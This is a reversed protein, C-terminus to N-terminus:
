EDENEKMANEMEKIGDATPNLVWEPKLFTNITHRQHDYCFYVDVGKFSIKMRSVRNSQREVISAKGARVLRCMEKYDKPTLETGYRERFRRCAHIKQSLAKPMVPKTSNAHRFHRVLKLVKSIDSM